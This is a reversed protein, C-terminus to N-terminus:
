GKIRDPSPQYLYMVKIYTWFYQPLSITYGVASENMVLLRPDPYPELFPQDVGVHQLTAKSDVSVTPKNPVPAWSTWRSKRM